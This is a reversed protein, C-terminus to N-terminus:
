IDKIIRSKLRINDDPFPQEVQWHYRHIKDAQHSNEFYGKSLEPLETEAMQYLNFYEEPVQFAPHPLTFNAFLHWPKEDEAHQKLWSCVEEPYGNTRQDGFIEVNWCHQRYGGTRQASPDRFFEHYDVKNRPTEHIANFGHDCAPALDMRGIDWSQIGGAQLFHAYTPVIGTFPTANGFCGIEHPWRGTLSSGRSPVCLPSNTYCNTFNVGGEALRDLNPTKVKGDSNVGLTDWRQQDSEIVLVNM